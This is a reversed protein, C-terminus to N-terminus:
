FDKLYEYRMGVWLKVTRTGFKLISDADHLNDETYKTLQANPYFGHFFKIMNKKGDFVYKAIFKRLTDENVNELLDLISSDLIKYYPYSCGEPVRQAGTVSSPIKHSEGDDRGREVLELGFKIIPLPTDEKM